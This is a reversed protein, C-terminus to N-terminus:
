GGHLRRSTLRIRDHFSSCVALPTPSKAPSLRSCALGEAGWRVRRWALPVVKRREFNFVLHGVETVSYTM